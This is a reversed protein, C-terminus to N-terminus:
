PDHLSLCPKSFSLSFSLIHTHKTLLDWWQTRKIAGLSNGSSQSFNINSLINRTDEFVSMQHVSGFLAIEGQQCLLLKNHWLVKMHDQHTQITMILRSLWVINPTLPQNQMQLTVLLIPYSTRHSNTLRRRWSSKDGWHAGSCLLWPLQSPSWCYSSHSVLASRSFGM